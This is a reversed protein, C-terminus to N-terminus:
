GNRNAQNASDIWETPILYGANHANIIQWAALEESVEYRRALSEIDIRECENMIYQCALERPLLLEAAFARARKELYEKGESNLLLEAVPMADKRDVIIHALEHALTSRILNNNTGLADNNTNLLIQINQNGWFALAWVPSAFSREYHIIELQQLISNLSSINDEIAFFERVYNALCYGQEYAPMLSDTVKGPIHRILDNLKKFDHIENGYNKLSLENLTKLIALVEEDNLVGNSMRAVARLPSTMYNEESLNREQTTIYEYTKVFEDSLGIDRKLQEDFPLPEHRKMWKKLTNRYQSNNKLKEYLLNGIIEFTSQADNLPMPYTYNKYEINLIFGSQYFYVKDKQFTKVDLPQSVFAKHIKLLEDNQKLASNDYCVSLAPSHFIAKWEDTLAVFFDGWNIEQPLSIEMKRLLSNNLVTEVTKYQAGYQIYEFYFSFSEEGIVRTQPYYKKASIKLFADESPTDVSFRYGSEIHLITQENDLRGFSKKAKVYVDKLSKNGGMYEIFLKWCKKCDLILWDSDWEESDSEKYWMYITYNDLDVAMKLGDYNMVAWLKELDVSNMKWVELYQQQTSKKINTGTSIDKM